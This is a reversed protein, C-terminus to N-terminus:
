SADPDMPPHRVIYGPEVHRRRLAKSKFEDPREVAPLHPHHRVDLRHHNVGRRSRLVTCNPDSATQM